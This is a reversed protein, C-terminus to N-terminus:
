HHNVITSFLFVDFVFCRLSISSFISALRCTRRFFIWADQGLGLSNILDGFIICLMPQSVGNGVGGLVGIILIVIDPGDMMSFLKCFSAMKKKEVEMLIPFVGVNFM